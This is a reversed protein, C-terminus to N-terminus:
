LDAIVGALDNVDRCIVDARHQTLEAEDGYGWTVGVSVAGVEKAGDIDYMRDGIMVIEGPGDHEGFGLSALAYRIVDGKEIRSGDMSSGCIVDFFEALKFEHMINVAFEEPKSTALALKVGTKKIQGLQERIGEYPVNEKWGISSFRVRYLRLAEKALDETMGFYKMFSPVLPPGIFKYLEERPPIAYGMESLAYMICNTIGQAPDTLTGDLDFLIYKIM